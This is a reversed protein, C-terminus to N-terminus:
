WSQFFISICTTNSYLPYHCRFKVMWLCQLWDFIQNIFRQLYSDPNPFIPLPRNNQTGSPCGRRLEWTFSPALGATNGRGFVNQFLKNKWLCGTCEWSPKGSMNKSWVGAQFFARFLVCLQYLLLQSYRLKSVIVRPLRIFTYILWIGVLNWM